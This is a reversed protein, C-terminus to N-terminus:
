RGGAAGGRGGRGGATDPVITYVLWRSNDTFQPNAASVITSETTAGVARYRLEQSGANRRFDYAVWKGNPSLTGSGLLEWGAYDAHALTPSAKAPPPTGQQRQAAITGAATLLLASYRIVRLM